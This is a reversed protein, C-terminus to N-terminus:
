PQGSEDEDRKMAAFTEIEEPWALTVAFWWLGATLFSYLVHYALGAPLFGLVLTPDDWLWFDQHLLTLLVIAVYLVVKMPLLAASARFRGSFAFQKNQWM